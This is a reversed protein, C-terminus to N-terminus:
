LYTYIVYGDFLDKLMMFPGGFSSFSFKGKPTSVDTQDSGEMARNDSVGINLTPCRWVM